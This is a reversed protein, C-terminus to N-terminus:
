IFYRGGTYHRRLRRALWKLVLKDRQRHLHFTQGYPADAPAGPAWPGFQSPDPHIAAGAKQAMITLISQDHRHERFGALNPLGHVNASDTLRAESATAEMPKAVFNRADAGARYLQYGGCLLPLEWFEPTDADLEVFCDRKTWIAEETSPVHKFLSLPSRDALALLPTPDAIFTMAVDVYLVKTGDPVSALADAIIFPKWLWYGAGRPLSMIEPHRASLSRVVDHEPGYIRVDELGFRAASRVLMQKAQSFNPTAYTLVVPSSM